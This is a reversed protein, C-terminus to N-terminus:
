SPCKYAIRVSTPTFVGVLELERRGLKQSKMKVAAVVINEKICIISVATRREKRMAKREM